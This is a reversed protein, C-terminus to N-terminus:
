SDLQTLLAVSRRTWYDSDKVVTNMDVKGTPPNAIPLRVPLVYNTSHGTTSLTGARRSTKYVPCEYFHEPMFPALQDLLSVLEPSLGVEEPKNKITGNRISRLKAKQQFKVSEIPRLWVVPMEDFLKKPLAENVQGLEDDWRAGDMFLGYVYCGVEPKETINQWHTSKPLIQFSFELEDIPVHMKRAYNQLVGSLFSQTFYFGSIWFAHPAGTEIWDRMFRLRRLFDAFWSSLPKLSPYAKASWAEPVANDMLAKAVAELEPTMLAKGVIAQQLELLTRRVVVTIRNYRMLEQVLVTNMSESYSIVYKRSVAETDFEAPLKALIESAVVKYVDETQTKKTEDQKKNSSSSAGTKPQVSQATRLIALADNIAATLNANSHLGFVEPPVSLPIKQVFEITDHRDYTAPPCVYPTNPGLTTLAYGDKLTSPNYFTKLLCVILRRDWFDTVRGGYNAEAAMYNLAEWPIVGSEAELFSQLQRACISRDPESFEYPINWGLAGFRRRELILAHFFCLGYHLKRWKSPSKHEFFDDSISKFSRSLNAQLGRPPENTMKVANQIVSMPFYSVPMATLWLRFNPHVEERPLNNIQDIEYELMSLFSKALHCNQLVAWEGQARSKKIAAVARKDQGKGLSIPNIQVDKSKALTRLDDMPDAGPSLVFLLTKAAVADPAPASSNFCEELNLTPPKLFEIGLVSAILGQIAGVVRDPRLANMLLCKEMETSKERLGLPWPALGHSINEHAVQHHLMEIEKVSMPKGDPHTTHHLKAATMMRVEVPGLPDDLDFLKQWEAAAKPDRLTDCINTFIGGLKELELFREWYLKDLWSACAEPVPEDYLNTGGALLLLRFQAADITGDVMMVKTALLFAFLLKDKEFLALCVNNFLMRQFNSILDSIRKAFQKPDRRVNSRNRNNVDAGSNGASRISRDYVSRYWTLSFQYMHDVLGLDCIVFFLHSAKHAVPSYAARVENSKTKSAELEQLKSEITIQTKKSTNLTDVLPQNDLIDVTRDSIMELITDELKKLTRNFEAAESIAQARALETQHDEINVLHALLQERLGEPTVVFNLLAVQVCIEPAYHPNPLHTTLFIKFDNNYDISTEGIKIMLVGSMKFVAKQLIPQLMPDLKEDVNELLVPIGFKICAELERQLDKTTLRLVRIAGSQIM